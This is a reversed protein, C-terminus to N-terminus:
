FTECKGLFGIALEVHEPNRENFEGDDLLQKLRLIDSSDGFFLEDEEDSEEAFAEEDEAEMELRERLDECALVEQLGGWCVISYENGLCSLAANISQRFGELESPTIREQHLCRDIETILKTFGTKMAEMLRAIYTEALDPTEIGKNGQIAAHLQAPIEYFRYYALAEVAHDFAWTMELGFPEYASGSVSVRVCFSGPVIHEYDIGDGATGSQVKQLWEEKLQDYDIM